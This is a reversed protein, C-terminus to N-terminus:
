DRRFNSKQRRWKIHVCDFDHLTKTCQESEDFSSSYSPFSCLLSLSLVAVLVCLLPPSREREIWPTTADCRMTTSTNNFILASCLSLHERYLNNVAQSAASHVRIAAAAAAKYLHIYCCCCCCRVSSARLASPSLSNDFVDGRERQHAEHAYIYFFFLLPSSSANKNSSSSVSIGSRQHVGRSTFYYNFPM